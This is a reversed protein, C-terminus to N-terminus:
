GQGWKTRLQAPCIYFEDKQHVPVGALVHPVKKHKIDTRGVNKLEVWRNQKTLFLQAYPMKNFEDKQHVPVGALVNPVKIPCYDISM